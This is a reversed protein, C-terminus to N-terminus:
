GRSARWFSEDIYIQEGQIRRYCSKVSFQCKDEFLWFWADEKVRMPIPIQRILRSDRENCIDRVVEMDWDTQNTNLFGQVQIDKLQEPMPTTIYGNEPSPLWPVQWVRTSRGDRIRRHCGQRISEQAELISRWIYSPNTGLDANM